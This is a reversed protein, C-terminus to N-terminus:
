AIKRYYEELDLTAMREIFHSIEEASIIQTPEDIAKNWKEAYDPYIIGYKENLYATTAYYDHYLTDKFERYPMDALATTDKQLLQYFEHDIVLHLFYGRGYETNIDFDALCDKLSIKGRLFSLASDRFGPLSHHTIASDEVEDPALTGDIFDDRKKTQHLALYANTAALHITVGPM